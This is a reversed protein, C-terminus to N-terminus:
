ARRWFFVTNIIKMKEIMEMNKGYRAWTGKSPDNLGSNFGHVSQIAKGWNRSSKIRYPEEGAHEEILM